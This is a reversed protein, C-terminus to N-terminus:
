RAAQPVLIRLSERDMETRLVQLAKQAPGRLVSGAADFRSGHLTCEFGDGKRSVPNEVHTCCMLLAIFEGDREKRVGVDYQLADSRVLQFEATRFLSLPVTLAGGTLACEFAQPSGCGELLGVGAGLAICM